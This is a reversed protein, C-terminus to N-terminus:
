MLNWLKLLDKTKPKFFLIHLIMTMMKEAVESIEENGETKSRKLLTKLWSGARQLITKDRDAYRKLFRENNLAKGVLKATVESDILKKYEETTMREAVKKKIEATVEADAALGAKKLEEATYKKEYFDNYQKEIEAVTESKAHERVFKSFQEYGAKNELYHVLEHAITGQITNKFDTSSDLVIVNKNGVKTILGGKNKGLGDVFRIELDSGPIVAMLNAIGKVTQTDVGEASRITRLIALRRRNNVNDFGKVYERATNLEQATPATKKEWEIWQEARKKAREARQKDTLSEKAESVKPEAKGEKQPLPVAAATSSYDTAKGKKTESSKNESESSKKAAEGRETAEAGTKATERAEAGESVAGSEQATKAADEALDAKDINKKSKTNVVPETQHISDNSANEGYHQAILAHSESPQTSRKIKVLKKDRM